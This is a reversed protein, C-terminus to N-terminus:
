SKFHTSLIAIIIDSVMNRLIVTVRERDRIIAGKKLLLKVVLKYQCPRRMLRCEWRGMVYSWNRHVSITYTMPPDLPAGPVRERGGRPGFKKWKWATKLYFQKFYYTLPGMKPIIVGTQSIRSGGSYTTSKGVYTHLQTSHTGEPQWIVLHLEGPINRKLWNMKQLIVHINSSVPTVCKDFNFEWPHGSWCKDFDSGFDM